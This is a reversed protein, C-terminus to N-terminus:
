TNKNLQMNVRVSMLGVKGSNGGYEVNIKRKIKKGAPINKVRM